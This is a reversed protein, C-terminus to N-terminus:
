FIRFEDARSECVGSNNVIMGMRMMMMMMMLMMKMMTMKLLMGKMTIVMLMMMMMMMTMTMMMMMMTMMVTMMMMMMMENSHVYMCIPVAKRTRACVSRNCVCTYVKGGGNGWLDSGEKSRFNSGAEVLFNCGINDQLWPKAM